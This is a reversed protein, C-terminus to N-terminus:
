EKITAYLMELDAKKNTIEFRQILDNGKEDRICIDSKDKSVDIGVYLITTTNM